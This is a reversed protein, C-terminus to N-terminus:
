TFDRHNCDLLEKAHNLEKGTQLTRREAGIRDAGLQPLDTIAPNSKAM